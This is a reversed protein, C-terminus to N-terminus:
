DKVEYGIYIEAASGFNKGPEASMSEAAKLMVYRAETETLEATKEQNDESWTGEGVKTWQATEGADPHQEDASVYIEYKTIVGNTQKTRPVYRLTGVTQIQKMDIIIWIDEQNCGDWSTHWMTGINGDLALAGDGETANDPQHSGTEATWGTREYETYEKNVNLTYSREKEGASELVLIDGSVITDGNEKPTNESGCVKASVGAFCQIGSMFTDVTTNKPIGSVASNKEDVNYVSSYVILQIEENQSDAEFVGIDPIMGVQNGFFDLNEIEAAAGTAPVYVGANIAPSSETVKYGDFADSTRDYVTHGEQVSEPASGKDEFMPDAIIPDTEPLDAGTESKDYGFYINNEYTQNGGPKWTQTTDGPILKAPATSENYFINNAIYAAGGRKGSEPHYVATELDGGLYFVNNHIKVLPNGQLTYFAKLDNQSINYRFTGNYAEDLCALMAGGGNGHSYNYQYLTGDSYDIDWAQGDGNGEGVTDYAENYQFVANKTKWPWIAACFSQWYGSYGDDLDVGATDSINRQVLPRDAYAVMIADNGANQVYNGEILINTHGYKKVTEDSIELGNFKANQYTYGVVIGARHVDKVYCNTIKVDDYRAIGTAEENDPPLVNMQIGGNDMHKDELNGDVDHIYLDDLYIHEMTGGNKAIGAVGTRDMRGDTLNVNNGFYDFDDSRNTIELGRIEIFDTDYLLIASSVYGKSRHNQNDIRGEYDQYWVGQGGANIIPRNGDGYSAIKIPAEETGSVDKLHIYGNFVSGCELLVSDGPKLETEKLKELTEWPKDESTGSNSDDGDLSSIYYTTGGARKGAAQVTFGGPSVSVTTLAVAAALFYSLTKKKM